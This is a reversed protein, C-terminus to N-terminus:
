LSINIRFRIIEKNKIIFINYEGEKHLPKVCLLGSEEKESTGESTSRAGGRRHTGVM